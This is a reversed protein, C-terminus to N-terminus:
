LGEWLDSRFWLPSMLNVSPTCLIQVKPRDKPWIAPLNQAENNEQRRLVRTLARPLHADQHLAVWCLPEVRPFFTATIATRPPM